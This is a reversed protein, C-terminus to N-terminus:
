FGGLWFAKLAALKQGMDHNWFLFVAGFSLFASAKNMM